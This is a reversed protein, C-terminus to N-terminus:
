PQCAAPPVYDEPLGAARQWAWISITFDRTRCYQAQPDKASYDDRGLLTWFKAVQWEEAVRNHALWSLALRHAATREIPRSDAAHAADMLIRLAFRNM